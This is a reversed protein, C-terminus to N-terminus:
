LESSSNNLRIQPRGLDAQATKLNNLKASRIRSFLVAHARVRLESESMERDDLAAFQDSSYLEIILLQLLYNCPNPRQM